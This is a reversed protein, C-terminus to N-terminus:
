WLMSEAKGADRIIGRVDLGGDLRLIMGTMAATFERSALQVYAAAHVEPHPDYPLPTSLARMEATARVDAQGLAALGRLDSMTGGPAVANVRVKPSLEHALQTVLGRVAFKSSTYLVGGAGAVFGAPSVTLIIRGENRVLEDLAAKTSLLCSKVNVSYIEDFAKSLRDAPLDVIGAFLDFVGVFCALVDIRGYEEVTQRVARENDELSTADGVVTAVNDGHRRKLEDLKREFKELLGVRAGAAIFADVAARGIGSGGGTALVVTGDLSGTM